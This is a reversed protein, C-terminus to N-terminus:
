RLFLFLHDGVRAEDPVYVKVTGSKESSTAYSGHDWDDDDADIVISSRLGPNFNPVATDDEEVVEPEMNFEIETEPEDDEKGNKKGDRAKRGTKDKKMRRMYETSARDIKAPEESRGLENSGIGAAVVGQVAISLLVIASKFIM